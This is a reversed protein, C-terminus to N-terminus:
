RSMPFPITTKYPIKNLDYTGTQRALPNIHKSIDYSTILTSIYDHIFPIKADVHLARNSYRKPPHLITRLIRNQTIQVRSCNTPTTFWWAQTGYTLVPRICSKYINLRLSLNLPSKYFIYSYLHAAVKLTKAIREEIASNWLMKHHLQIGLYKVQDQWPIPTGLIQINFKNRSAFINKRRTFLIAETKDFNTKSSGIQM